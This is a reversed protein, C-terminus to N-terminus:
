KTFRFNKGVLQYHASCIVEVVTRKTTLISGDARLYYCFGGPNDGQALLWGSFGQRKYVNIVM